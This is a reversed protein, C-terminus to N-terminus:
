GSRWDPRAREDSPGLGSSPWQESTMAEDVRTNISVHYFPVGANGRRHQPRRSLRRDFPWTRCAAHARRPRLSRLPVFDDDNRVGFVRRRSASQDGPNILSLRFHPLAVLSIPTPSGSLFVLNGGMAESATGGGHSPRPISRPPCDRRRRMIAAYDDHHVANPFGVFLASSAAVSQPPQYPL